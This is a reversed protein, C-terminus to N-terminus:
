RTKTTKQQINALFCTITKLEWPQLLNTVSVILFILLIIKGTNLELDTGLNLKGDAKKADCVLKTGNLKIENCSGAFNVWKITGSPPEPKPLDILYYKGGEYQKVDNDAYRELPSKEPFIFIKAVLLAGGM